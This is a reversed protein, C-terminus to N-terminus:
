MGSLGPPMGGGMGGMPDMGPIGGMGGMSALGGAASALESASMTKLDKDIKAEIEHKKVDDWDINPMYRKKAWERPVGITELTSVLNALQSTYTAEREFQLSRPTAFAVLVDTMVTIAKDPDIIRYVKTILEQVQQSLYKQHNVIARAFIISEESLASKNSNHVIIGASVAFNSYKEVTIDGCDHLGPLKEVKTVEYNSQHEKNNSNEPKLTTFSTGVKLHQAEIYTKGDNLLFPHEPTCDLFTGNSIYVRIVETQLKTTGAWLIKNAFIINEDPNYSYVYNEKGEEYEKILDELTIDRGDTLKIYTSSKVLCLNEELNLFSAPVSMSAVISDRMFKLMEVRNRGADAGADNFSSIDVFPKGDKAPVYIDEFSTIMSNHVFVGDRLAFNHFKETQIDAVDVKEDVSEVSVVKHNMYKPVEVQSYNNRHMAKSSCSKSGCTKYIYGVRKESFIVPKDCICCNGVEIDTHLKGGRKGDILNLRHISDKCIPDDCSVFKRITKPNVKISKGCCDCRSEEIITECSWRRKSLLTNSCQLCCASREKGKEDIYTDGCVPCKSITLESYTKNKGALIRRGFVRNAFDMNKRCDPNECSFACIDNNYKKMRSEYLSKTIEIEKGCTFCNTKIMSYENKDKRKTWSNVSYQKKYETFCEDSCCTTPAFYKKKFEKGCMVCNADVYIEREENRDYHGLNHINIHEVRTLGQLNWSSNDRPNTSIHHIVENKGDYLGLYEGFVQHTLEYKQSSPQYCLEYTCKQSNTYSTSKRYHPMLSDGPKLDKAMRYSGDRLMWLHEPTCKIYKENDINVKVVEVNRGTIQAGVVKDPVIKGTSHDYTYIEFENGKNFLEVMDGIPISKGNTLSIETSLELCPITDVTGFNDLSIKRKRFDEKLKEILKRTDRPLGYEITIKRKEISRNIMLITMAVEMAILVKATFQCADFISEGYPYYKTSPVYFHQMRDIPVYRINMAKSMDSEKVMTRLIDKLDDTNVSDDKIGPIKKELSSLISQCIANISQDQVLAQPNVSTIPFILYGFCIPFMNSQLKVVRKPDYFLLKLNEAKIDKKFTPSPSVGDRRDFSTYDLIVEMQQKETLRVPIIDRDTNSQYMFAESETLYASKSLLATKEDAIECFFDGLHLTNKVIVDLYKELKIKEIVDRVSRTNAEENDDDVIYDNPKIDLSVKTIDDPSLINDTLVQLARHCYNINMTISEYMKYRQLRGGQGFIAPSLSTISSGGVVNNAQYGSKSILDKVLEIYSNKNTQTRYAIIDKSANDLKSDIDTTKTGIIQMKLNDYIDKINAM